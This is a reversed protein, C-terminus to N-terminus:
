CELIYLSSRLNGLLFVVLGILFHTFSKLLCKELSFACIALLCKFLTEIGNTM